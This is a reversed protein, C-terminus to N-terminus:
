GMGLKWHRDPIMIVQLSRDEEFGSTDCIVNQQNFLHNKCGCTCQISYISRDDGGDSRKLALVIFPTSIKQIVTIM